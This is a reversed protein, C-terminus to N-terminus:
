APYMCGQALWPVHSTPRTHAPVSGGSLGKPLTDKHQSYAAGYRAARSIFPFVSPMVPVQFWMVTLLHSLHSAQNWGNISVSSPAQNSVM